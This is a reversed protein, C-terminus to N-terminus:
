EGRGGGQIERERLYRVRSGLGKIGRRGAKERESTRGREKDINERKKERTREM